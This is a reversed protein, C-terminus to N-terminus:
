RCATPATAMWMEPHNALYDGYSAQRWVYWSIGFPGLSRLACNWDALEARTPLRTAEGCRICRFAQAAVIPEAHMESRVYHIERGIEGLAYSKRYMGIDFPYYWIGVFDAVGQVDGYKDGVCSYRRPMPGGPAWDSPRGLDHFIKAEPWVTRITTRLERLEAASLAGCHDNAGTFPNLWYPENYVFIAKVLGSRSRAYRLFAQGEQSITWTGDQLRYPPPWLGVILQLHANEAADFTQRWKLSDTAPLATIVFTYGLRELSPFDSAEAWHTGTEVRSARVSPTGSISEESQGRVVRRGALWGDAAFLLVAVFAFGLALAGFKSGKGGMGAFKM